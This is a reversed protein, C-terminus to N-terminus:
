LIVRNGFHERLKQQVPKTIYNKGLDLRNLRASLPSALLTRAGGDRIENFRLNLNVLAPLEASKALAEAGERHVSGRSIDLTHLSTLYPSRAIAKAGESGVFSGSLFLRQLNRAAPTGVLANIGTSTIGRNSPLNLVTLHKLLSGRALGQAGADTLGYDTIGLWTLQHLRSDALEALSEDGIKGLELRLLNGLHPSRALERTGEVGISHGRLGLFALSRFNSSAALAKVGRDELNCFDLHIWRLNRLYPSRALAETGDPGITGFSINLEQLNTWRPSNAFAIMLKPTFWCGCNGLRLRELRAWAAHKVVVEPLFKPCANAQFIILNALHPSSVLARWADAGFQLNTLNLFRLSEVQPSLAFEIAEEDSMGHNYGIDLHRLGQLLGSALLDHVLGAANQLCLSDFPVKRRLSKGHRLFDHANLRFHFVGRRFQARGRHRALTEKHFRGPGRVWTPLGSRWQQVHTLLLEAEQECLVVGRPDEDTLKELECQVRILSARAPEGHEELWDAFILRPFEDDPNDIIARLFADQDNM